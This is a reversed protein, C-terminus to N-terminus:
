VEEIAGCDLCKVGIFRRWEQGGDPAVVGTAYEDEFGVLRESDCVSCHSPPDDEGPEM